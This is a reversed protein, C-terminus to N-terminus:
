EAVAKQDTELQQAGSAGQVLAGRDLSGHHMHHLPASQAGQVPTCPPANRHKQHLTVVGDLLEVVGKAAIADLARKAHQRRLDRKDDTPPTMRRAAETLVDGAAARGSVGCAAIAAEYAIAQEGRLAPLKAAKPAVEIPEVYCSWVPEGDEDVVGELKIRGLRFGFRLGDEGDKQKSIRAERADDAHRTVEIEFDLAAKMGSWGRAGKSADKGAHHVLIVTAGTEEHILKCAAIATQMESSNEDLGATVQALTDVTLLDFGGRAKIRAILDDIVPKEAFQPAAPLIEFCVGELDIGLHQSAALLRQHYGGTGEACIVAVRARKVRHGRWNRGDAVHLLLDTLFFTKGDGSGGFAWGSAVKPIVGKVHWAIPPRKVFEHAPTFDIGAPLAVAAVAPQQAAWLERGAGARKAANIVARMTVPAGANRGFTAFKRGCEEDGPFKDSNRSWELWLPLGGDGYEHQLAQGCM